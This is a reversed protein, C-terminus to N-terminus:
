FHPFHGSDACHSSNMYWTSAFLCGTDNYKEGEHGSAIYFRNAETSLSKKRLHGVLACASYIRSLNWLKFRHMNCFHTWFVPPCKVCISSSVHVTHLNTTALVCLVGVCKLFCKLHFTLPETWQRPFPLSHRHLYCSQLTVINDCFDPWNLVSGQGIKQFVKGWFIHLKNKRSYWCHWLLRIDM